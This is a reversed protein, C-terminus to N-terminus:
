RVQKENGNADLTWVQGNAFTTDVGPKLQSKAAPPLAAGTAPGLGRAERTRMNGAGFRQQDTSDLTRLAADQAGNLSGQMLPDSEKINPSVAELSQALQLAPRGGLANKVEQSFLYRLNSRLRSAKSAASDSLGVTAGVDQEANGIRGLVAGTRQQIEPDKLDERIQSVAQLTNHAAREQDVAPGALPKPFPLGTAKTFALAVPTRLAAPVQAATDPNDQVQKAWGQIADGGFEVSFKKANIAANSAEANATITATKNKAFEDASLGGHGTRFALDLQAIAADAQDKPLTATLHAASAQFDAAHATNMAETSAGTKVDQVNKQAKTAYQNLGEVFRNKVAFANGDDWSAITPVNEPKLNKDTVLQAFAPPALRAVDADSRKQGNEDYLIGNLTDGIQAHMKDNLGRQESTNALAAKQQNILSTQLAEQTKPQIKGALPFAGTGDYSGLANANAPDKLWDQITNQDALDRNKQEAEAQVNAQTAANSQIQQQRLQNEISASRLQSLQSIMSLADPPPAVPPPKYGSLIINPDSPM